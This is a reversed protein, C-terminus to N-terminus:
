QLPIELVVVDVSTGEVNETTKSVEALGMKKYFSIARKNLVETKVVIKRFGVQRASSIVKEILQTGIGIGAASELVIIGSLEITNEDIKRTAAFGLVRGRDEVIYIQVDPNSLREKLFEESAIENISEETAGTFGLAGSGAEKWAQLFFTILKQVDAM